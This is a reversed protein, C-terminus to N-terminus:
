YVARTPSPGTVARAENVSRALDALYEDIIPAHVPTLMLHIGRPERIRGVSWGRATMRDAITFIDHGASGFGVAWLEPEGWVHLGGGIRALGEVLHAKAEMVTAAIRRYGAEGLFNMVAWAAAIAGGPRTGTFTNVSYLGTPWDDFDYRGAAQHEATRFLVVSAGKATYGSKHLDASVSTVGPLALGFEPVPHGLARVFPGLIGGVCADVHLWLGHTRALNALETIPDIVGLSYTPASAYLMVTRPTIAAAMAAVDARFGDGVPVRLVKMGLYHAAKSVAPHASWPAVIEPETVDPRQQRAWQRAAHTALFISETGGSTLHGTVAADGGLLHRVMAVVDTEMRRLSPFVRLGLGNETMFLAYAERAVQEVADDAHWVFAAHRGRRWDLDDRKLDRLAQALEPWSRGERPLPAGEPPRAPPRAESMIPSTIM